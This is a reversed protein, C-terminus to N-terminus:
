LSQRELDEAMREAVYQALAATIAEPNEDDWEGLMRLGVLVDVWERSYLLPAVRM